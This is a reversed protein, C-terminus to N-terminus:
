LSVSSFRYPAMASPIISIFPKFGILVKSKKPILPDLREPTLFLVLLILLPWLSYVVTPAWVQLPISWGASPGSDILWRLDFGIFPGIFITFLIVFFQNRSFVLHRRCSLLYLTQDEIERLEQRYFSQITKQYFQGFDGNEELNEEIIVCIHDLLEARLSDLRIGHAALDAHIFDIQKDTISYM